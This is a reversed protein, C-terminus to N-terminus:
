QIQVAKKEETPLQLNRLSAKPSNNLLITPQAEAKPIRVDQLKLEKVDDFICAPRFDSEQYSLRVNKLQVGEAHRIYLGWSPLEGFMSFEPYGEANEPVNTLSDLGFHAVEKRAGGGYVIEINELTVDQVPHGPLGTISSPFLNHPTRIIPGEVPYGIDPKGQPIEATVNAIYVRRLKGVPAEQRRHGLRIFIANGTNVAKIDRIDIDELIAGDVSELAIASRFTDYIFLNRVTINKFGGLSGTGLKFASASSRITCNAVYINECRSKPDESKLCIGDDAANITCNTIRVDKCDVLDIGDNNWYATSTVKVSDITVNSCKQYSNVWTAGDKLTIGTVRVNTCHIFKLLFPRNQETPRKLKWQSDQIVGQRLLRLIDIVLERGQGDILGKGTVSVNRQDKAIIFAMAFTSDYDLRKASGLLTADEALHLEVGSKLYIKGTLFVGAPVIVKGSGTASAADIAKQISKANNTKGDAKAGYATIDYVNPKPQSVGVTSFLALFLLSLLLLRKM